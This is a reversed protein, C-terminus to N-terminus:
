KKESLLKRLQTLVEPKLAEAPLDGSTIEKLLDETIRIKEDLKRREVDSIERNIRRIKEIQQTTPYLFSLIYNSSSVKEIEQQLGEMFPGVGCIRVWGRSRTIATFLTNRKRALELGAFCAQAGVVYVLPAENGKARFIHTIPISNSVFFDSAASTIGAIHASIKKAALAKIINAGQSRIAFTDCVIVMVDTVLLEEEDINKLIDDAVWSYQDSANDFRKVVVADDVSMQSRFFSPTAGEARALEVSKGHVLQGSRVEYGIDRWIEPDDFMQVLGIESASPPERYVGFGLAHAVTLAWPTNRYCIPLVIDQRADYEKNKLQVRPTGDPFKGFLDETPLMTYSSVTQLEDYAFIIRKPSKTVHYVLEFFEQPMDQAEDILVADFIEPSNDRKVIALLEGCIGAFARESGFRSSATGFDLPTIGYKRAILSYIGEKSSGGWCHRINLKTWDPEEKSFQFNFRTILAEFQQYLSQTYFTVAIKWDPNSIHLYSAKQALVITKGSGALGRIRQPASPTEIAAQKQWKDLNAIEAEIIKLKKGKSNQKVVNERSKAPRLTVTRQISANLNIFLEDSLGEFDIILGSLDRPTCIFPPEDVKVQDAAVVLSIVHIPFSLESRRRLARNELLRVKFATEIDIQRDNIAEIGLNGSRFDFVVLGHEKTTMVADVTASIGDIPVVPYGLYLTGTLSHSAQIAELETVLSKAAQPNGREGFIIDLM